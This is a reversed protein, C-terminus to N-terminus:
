LTTRIEVRKDTRYSVKYYFCKSFLLERKIYLYCIKMVEIGSVFYSLKNDIKMQYLFVLFFFKSVVFLTIFLGFTNM